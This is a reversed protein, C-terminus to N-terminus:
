PKGVEIYQGKNNPDEVFYAPEGQANKGLRAGPPVPKEQSFYKKAAVQDGPILGYVIMQALSNKFASLITQVDQDSHAKTLFNPRYQQVHIGELAMLVFLLHKWHASTPVSIYFISSFEEFTVECRMKEIFVKAETAMETTKKELNEYFPLGEAKIKELVAKAAALCLPHRVFTGAFFTVGSEPISEDGYQWYGGDLADMFRTKGGIIGIPYGGGVVKGYTALDADINFRKRIGGPHVRFGTVVEDLILATGNEATISRLTQLYEPSHFEPRRSQVPEVLVAALEKGMKRLSELSEDEGWPLVVMNGTAERTIGPAAPLAQYNRGPRNIVEDFIGHYSGDFMAVKNRGTVTRAIRIAGIVAESGSCAFTARENGTLECFLEAVEGALPSQPGTEVGKDIQEKVADSVFDPSHGFFIPGFGNSIDILENGDIDWLRSGKSKVTVIPFVIEKWEPSFGSATRPDAFVKRYKQTYAKSGAFKKQYRTMVDDIWDKQATSLTVGAAERAIRTGPTHRATAKADGTAEGLPVDAEPVSEAGPLEDVRHNQGFTEAALQNVANGSLAQLQWQMIQLQANILSHLSDGADPSNLKLSDFPLSDKRQGMVSDTAAAANSKVQEKMPVKGAIFGTLDKLCTYEEVLHRFTVGVDFKQDIAIAVQSLLLSDLGLESFYAEEDMGELDYGSVDEFLAKLEKQIRALHQEQSMKAGAKQNCAVESISREPNAQVPRGEEGPAGLWHIEPKFAYGPLSIKNAGALQLSAEWNVPFGRTWLKGICEWLEAEGREDIGCGPLSPIMLLHNAQPQFSLLATLTTGPGIEVFAVASDSYEHIASAVADSFLVPMRLQSAWYSPSMAEEANLLGGTKTSFVPLTPHGRQVANVHAEFEGLIPEMARSHFAHSARLIKSLIGSRNLQEHIEEIEAEPGCLVVLEPANVAALGVEDGLYERVSDTGAKVVLMKGPPMSQMLAGRRAVLSIGDEFEFVGAITAAAFEGISHGILFNPSCGSRLLFRAIGYELLFLAPQAAMTQNIDMGEKVSNNGGFLLRRIDFGEQDLVIECGRDFLQRFGSNNEYLWSGMGFRQSGQGSFMFGIKSIHKEHIKGSVYNNKGLRKAIDEADRGYVLNRHAFHRRGTASTYAADRLEMGAANDKIFRYYQDIQRDIADATKGSLLVPYFENDDKLGPAESNAPVGRYEEILIHANTGGVGLSSVAARRPSPGPWSILSTNVFFPTRDLEMKPNPEKFFLTPPIANNAVALATKILGAIGASHITHGINSKVSGLACTKGTQWNRSYCQNLAQVELPDGLPTATGHAEIFGVTQPDVNARLLAEEYVSVQGDFGPATYSAKKGGDNNVAFGKIVVYIRDRDRLALDLRKIVVAGAGDNFTTGTADADFPRCHGDKSLMGGEKYLYGSKLPTSVSVGAAIAQECHGQEIASCAQAVAVLGTSCATFVNISPGKLNLKYSIRTSLFDAENVLASNLDGFKQLLAKNQLVYQQYYRPWNMGAFVGTRRGHDGPPIGADELAHWSTQLLIRQQPDMIDAELPPISFFGADFKDCDEIVGKARVYDAHGKEIPDIENSLEDEAFFRVTEKGDVLNRWYEDLNNAGPFRCAMGIIAFEAAQESVTRRANGLSVSPEGAMFYKIQSSITPYQFVFTANLETGFRKEMLEAIRLAELSTGGADLFNAEPAIRRGLVQEWCESVAHSGTAKEGSDAFPDPLKSEDLKGNQNKPLAKMAIIFHPVMYHPFKESLRARLVSRDANSKGVVYAALRKQGMPGIKVVVRAEAIDELENLFFEIEGPEIRHGDIKVQADNRELFEYSGEENKLVLDGTRYGRRKVGDACYLEIFKEATLEPRNLYGLALGDGFAILEGSTDKQTVPNLNEDFIECHTGAIPYGIPIRRIEEPLQRSIPYITTFTTNETPGYGNFLQTEPLLTLGKKVHAVSLAEGGTLLQKVPKLTEPHESIITNFLSSTLWLTTVGQSEISERLAASSIAYNESHLVCTGGNLLAGWLELTAADFSLTSLQLFVEKASFSIYDTDVVLRTIGRHPVVVGKPVGTSGSTFFICAPMEIDEPVAPVSKELGHVPLKYWKVSLHPLLSQDDEYLGIKAGTEECIFRQREVPYAPDIFVYHGGAWLIGVLFSCLSPSRFSPLVVADGKELGEFALWAAVNKAEELLQGYSCHKWIGGSKYAVAICEPYRAAVEIFRQVVTNSNQNKKM